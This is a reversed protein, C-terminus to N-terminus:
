RIRAAHFGGPKSGLTLAGSRRETVQRHYRNRQWPPAVPQEGGSFLRHHQRLMATVSPMHPIQSDLLLPM